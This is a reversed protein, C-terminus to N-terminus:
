SVDRGDFTEVIRSFIWLITSINLASLGIVASIIEAAHIM